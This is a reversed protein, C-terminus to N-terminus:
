QEPAPSQEPFFAAVQAPDIRIELHQAARQGTRQRDLFLKLAEPQAHTLGTVDLCVMSSQMAACLHQEDIAQASSLDLGGHLRIITKGPTPESEFLTTGYLGVKDATPPNSHQPLPTTGGPDSPVSGVTKQDAV